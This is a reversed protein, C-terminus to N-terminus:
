TDKDLFYVSSTEAPKVEARPNQPLPTIAGAAGVAIVPADTKLGCSIKDRECDKATVDPM